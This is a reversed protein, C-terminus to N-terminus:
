VSSKKSVKKRALLYSKIPLSILVSRLGILPKEDSDPNSISLVEPGTEMGGLRHNFRYIQSGLALIPRDCPLYGRAVFALAELTDAPQLGIGTLEELAEDLSMAGAPVLFFRVDDYATRTIMGDPGDKHHRRMLEIIELTIERWQCDPRVSLGHYLSERTDGPTMAISFSSEITELYFDIIAAVVKKLFWENTVLAKWHCFKLGAWQLREIGSAIEGLLISTLGPKVQSGM